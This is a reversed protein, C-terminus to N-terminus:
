MSGSIDFDRSRRPRPQKADYVDNIAGSNSPAPLGLPATYDVPADAATVLRGTPTTIIESGPQLYYQDSVGGGTGTTVTAEELRWPAGVTDTILPTAKNYLIHLGAMAFASSRIAANGTAAGVLWTSGLAVLLGTWGNLRLLTPILLYCVAAILGGADGMLSKPAASKKLNDLFKSM